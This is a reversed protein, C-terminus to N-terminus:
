AFDSTQSRFKRRINFNYQVFTFPERHTVRLWNGPDQRITQQVQLNRDRDPGTTNAHRVLLVGDGDERWLDLASRGKDLHERNRTLIGHCLAKSHWASWYVCMHFRHTHCHIYHWFFLFILSLTSCAEMKDGKAVISSEQPCRQWSGRLAFCLAQLVSKTIFWWILSVTILMVRPISHSSQLTAFSCVPLLLQDKHGVTM